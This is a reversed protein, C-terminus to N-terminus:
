GKVKNIEEIINMKILISFVSHSIAHKLEELGQKDTEITGDKGIQCAFDWAREQSLKEHKSAEVLLKSVVLKAPIERYKVENNEQYAEKAEIGDPTKLNFNLDLKM